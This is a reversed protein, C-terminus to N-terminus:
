VLGVVFCISCAFRLVFGLEFPLITFAGGWVVGACAQM